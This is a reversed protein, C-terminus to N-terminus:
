LFPSSGDNKETYKKLSEMKNFPFVAVFLSYLLKLRANKSREGEIDLSLVSVISSDLLKQRANKCRGGEIDRFLVSVISSDLLNPRIKKCRVEKSRYFTGVLIYLIM